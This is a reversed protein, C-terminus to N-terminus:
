EQTQTSEALALKRAENKQNLVDWRAQDKKTHWLGQSQRVIFRVNLRFFECQEALTMISEIDIPKNAM